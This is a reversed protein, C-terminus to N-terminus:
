YKLQCERTASEHWNVSSRIVRTRRVSSRTASSEAEDNNNWNIVIGSEIALSDAVIVSASYVLGITSQVTSLLNLILKSSGHFRNDVSLKSRSVNLTACSLSFTTIRVVIRRQAVQFM